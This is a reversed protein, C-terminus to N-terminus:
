ELALLWEAAKSAATAAQWVADTDSKLVKLWNALYDAHDQGIGGEVALETEVGLAAGLFASTFEAM